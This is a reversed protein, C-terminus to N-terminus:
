VYELIVYYQNIWNLVPLIQTSQYELKNAPRIFHYQIRLNWKDLVNIKKLWLVM